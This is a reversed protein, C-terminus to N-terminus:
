FRMSARLGFERGHGLQYLQGLFPGGNFGYVAYTKNTINDVYAEVTFHNGVSWAIGADLVAYANQRVTNTEDFYTKGVFSIGAHPTLRGRDAPLTIAYEVALNATVPPAYPVRNNKYSIGPTAPNNYKTFRTDNLGLGATIRLAEIPTATLTLNFGKAVVNGANQLYQNPQVGVFLQYDDTYTYYAAAAVELRRNFLNAKVGIEANHSKQPGYTFAINAPTVNRTFGGARYGTGYLAYLRVDDTIQYGLALKPSVATFGKADALSAAGRARAKAHEYDFRLGPTVDFRDTVHWTAEGYLAYSAIGQKSTQGAAPVRREFNVHQFYAGAVYDVRKRERPDSTIRLEQSITTQDEPTYSGFITRRLSRDQFGTLSTLTAFGLDYAATLGLSTSALRYHSDTPFVQRSRFASRSVYQEEDSRTLSRSATIMVDLAGSEPAYRLRVRGTTDRTDGVRRGTSRKYDGLDRDYGLAADGYLIDKIIAGSVRASAARDLRGLAGDAVIERDNGPKRTIINLVGGVAGRGYLTGQPGYLLEVRDLGLPLLRDLTAQDQPLGDVYVQTSPNYFDISSQGRVTFNSYARSSRQRINVDPFIRDLQGVTTFGRSSLAGPKVVRVLSDVKQADQVQKTSTVRIPELVDPQSETQAWTKAPVGGGILAALAIAIRVAHRM